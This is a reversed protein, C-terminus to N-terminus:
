KQVSVQFACESGAIRIMGDITGPYNSKGNLYDNHLDEIIKDCRSDLSGLILCAKFIEASEVQKTTGEGVMNHPQLRDWMAELAHCQTQFRRGHSEIDQQPRIQLVERM